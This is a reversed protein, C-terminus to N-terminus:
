RLTECKLLAYLRRVFRAIPLAHKIEFSHLSDKVAACEDCRMEGMIMFSWDALGDLRNGTVTGTLGCICKPANAVLTALAMMEANEDATRM